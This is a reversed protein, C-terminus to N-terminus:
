HEHGGHLHQRRLSDPQRRGDQDLRGHREHGRQLQRRQGDLQRKGSLHHGSRESRRDHPECRVFRPLHEPGNHRRHEHTPRQERHAFPQGVIINTAGTYTNNNTLSLGDPGVKTLGGAGSIHGNFFGTNVTLTGGGLTVNGDGRLGTIAANNGNLDLTAGQAVTVVTNNSLANAAGYQLTGAGVTTAGTFTNAGSLTLTGTGAKDLGGTGSIVGGFATSANTGGATLTGNGLTVAGAGALSGITANTNNLDLTAGQAVTVASSVLASGSELLVTGQSITTAGAFAPNDAALSLTGTGLKILGGVGSLLGFLSFGGAGTVTLKGALSLPGNLATVTDATSNILFGGTDAVTVPNTINLGNLILRGGSALSVPSSGLAAADLPQLSAASTVSVGGSFTNLAALTVLTGIGGTVILGGVGSLVGALIVNGNGGVSTNGSAVAVQGHVTSTSNSKSNIVRGGDSVNLPAAIDYGNLDLTAGSSINVMATNGLAAANQLKLTGAIIDTDGSYTNAGALCLTGTGAKTLGGTGSIVGSFTTSTNDGGATLTGSGLTVHGAGALSGITASMNNLDLTAGAAVTVASNRPLANAAGLQLTGASITTAGMYSNAAALTTTGTGTKTLAFNGSIAGPLLLAGDGGISADGVLALPGNLTAASATNSNILAGNGGVGTGAVTLPDSISQGDLDLTAGAAISTLASSSGLATANQLQLTGGSLTTGGSYSNAATLVVTGAATGNLAVALSDPGSLASAVTLTGGGGGLLYTTGNPTLTGSYTVSGVAGLSAAALNAGSTSFDLPNSSDQALAIVGASTNVIRGLFAQDIAYGAAATGGSNVTVNAGSGGIAGPSNFQLVGGSIITGGSNSNAGALTTTGSGAQTLAGSGSIVGALLLNGAGGISANGVLAVPANLTAPSGSNSNILAGNGLTFPQSPGLTQNEGNFDFVGGNVALLGGQSIQYDGTGALQVTGSNLTLSRVANVNPSASSAKALRVAGADVTLGLNANDGSGSLTLTGSGTKTVSGGSTNAAITASAGPVVSLSAPSGVLSLTNGTVTYGDSDFTLGGATIGTGLTVTGASGAFVASDGNANNWAVDATGNFWNLSSTDWAGNGGSGTGGTHGPDWYLTSLLTRDELAELFPQVRRTGQAASRGTRQKGRRGWGLKALTATGLKRWSVSILM